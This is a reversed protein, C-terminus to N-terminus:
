TGYLSIYSRSLHHHSHIVQIKETRVLRKLKFVTELIVRPNKCELDRIRIHIINQEKLLNEYVGGSSAIYVRNGQKKCDSALEYVIKEAGGQGMTRSLYLINM